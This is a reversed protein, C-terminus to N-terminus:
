ILCFYISDARFFLFVVVVVVIVVVVFVFLCFCSFVISFLVFIFIATSLHLSAVLLVVEKWENAMLKIVHSDRIGM